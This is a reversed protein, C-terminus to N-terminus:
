RLEAPPQAAETVAPFLIEEQYALHQMTIILSKHAIIHQMRSGIIFAILAQVAAKIGHVQKFDHMRQESLESRLVPCQVPALVQQGKYIVM